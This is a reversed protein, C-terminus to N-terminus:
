IRSLVDDITCVLYGNVVQARIAEGPQVSNIDHIIQKNKTLIAYGRELTHLPSVAQLARAVNALKEQQRHIQNKTALVIREYCTYVQSTLKHLKHQPNHHYLIIKIKNLKEIKQHLHRLILKHLLEELYDLKQSFQQLSQHPSQLRKELNFLQNKLYRL